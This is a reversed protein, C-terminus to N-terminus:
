AASEELKAEFKVAEEETLDKTGKIKRAASGFQEQLLAVGTERDIKLEKCLAQIRKRTAETIPPPPSPLPPLIPKGDFDKSDEEHEAPLEEKAVPAPPMHGDRTAEFIGKHLNIVARVISPIQEANPVFGLEGIVKLVVQMEISREKAMFASSMGGPVAAPKPLPPMDM